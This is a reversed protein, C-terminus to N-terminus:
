PRGEPRKTSEYRFFFLNCSLSPGSFGLVFIDGSVGHEKAIDSRTAVKAVQEKTKSPVSKTGQVKRDINRPSRKQLPITPIRGERKQFSGVMRNSQLSMNGGSLSHLNPQRLTGAASVGAAKALEKDTRLRDAPVNKDEGSKSKASVKDGGNAAHKAKAAEKITMCIPCGTIAARKKYSVFIHRSHRGFSVIM